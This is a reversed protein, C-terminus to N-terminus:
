SLPRWLTKSTGRNM